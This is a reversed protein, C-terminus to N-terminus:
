NSTGEELQLARGSKKGVMNVPPSELAASNSSEPDSNQDPRTLSQAAALSNFPGETAASVEHGETNQEIFPLFTYSSNLVDEVPLLNGDFHELFYSAPLGIQTNQYNSRQCGGSVYAWKSRYPFIHTGAPPPPEAWSQPIGFRVTRLGLGSDHRKMLREWGTRSLNIWIGKPDCCEIPPLEAHQNALQLERCSLAFMGEAVTSPAVLGANKTDM